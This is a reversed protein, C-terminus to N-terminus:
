RVGAMLPCALSAALWHSGDGGLQRAAQEWWEGGLKLKRLGREVMWRQRPAPAFGYELGVDELLSGQVRDEFGETLTGPFATPM